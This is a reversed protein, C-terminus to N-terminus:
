KSQTATFEGEVGYEEVNVTGSFKDTGTLTGSYTVTLPSGNYEVKVIWNVKGDTVKGSITMSRAESECNGSLDSDKQVFTCTQDNETGGISQHIQWKGTLALNDAAALVGASALIFSLLTFRM